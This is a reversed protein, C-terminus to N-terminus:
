ADKIQVKNVLGAITNRLQTMEINSRELEDMAQKHRREFFECRAIITEVFGDSVIEAHRKKKALEYRLDMNCTVLKRNKKALLKNEITLLQIDGFVKKPVADIQKKLMDRDREAQYLKQGIDEM